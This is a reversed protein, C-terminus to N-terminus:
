LSLQKIGLVLKKAKLQKENAYEQCRILRTQQVAPM